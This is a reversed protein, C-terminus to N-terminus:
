RAEFGRFQEGHVAVRGACKDREIGMRVQAFVKGLLKAFLIGGGPARGVPPEEFVEARGCLFAVPGREFVELREVLGYGVADLRAQLPLGPRGNIATSDDTVFFEIAQVIEAREARVQTSYSREEICRPTM